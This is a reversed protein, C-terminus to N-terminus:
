PIQERGRGLSQALVRDLELHRLLKRGLWSAGFLKTREVRVGKLDVEVCEPEKPAVFQDTQESDHAAACRKVGLQGREDM